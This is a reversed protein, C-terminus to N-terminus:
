LNGRKIQEREVAEFLAKINGGGFGRAGSRQIVEMFLTPRTQLPRTFIQLLYGWDDRDALIGLAQLTEPDEDLRGVRDELMNYYSTPTNLFEITNERLVRVSQVIDGSLFALHQVGPGRHFTLYEDIQSKRRGAAPEMMPFKIEGTPNQVVKSNMASHETSVDEQHSQHFGLVDKYFEIWRDLSGAEVSLAIHDIETLGSGIAPQLNKLPQYGPFLLFESDRQIFSHVTHGCTAVTAKIWRGNEGEVMTPELVPTAGREIATDFAAIADDVRFAIDKVSDGHLSVHAAVPSDPSIASTLILRIEGQEMVFSAHDREGTELGAYAVPQFGFTTRYFHATHRANGVYLQIYDFGNLKIVDRNTAVEFKEETILV